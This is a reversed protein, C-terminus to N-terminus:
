PANTGSPPHDDKAKDHLQALQQNISNIVPAAVRFPLEVLAANLVQMQQETFTLTIM